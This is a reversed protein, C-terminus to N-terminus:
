SCLKDAVEEILKRVEAKQVGSEGCGGKALKSKLTERAQLVELLPALQGEYSPSLRLLFALAAVLRHVVEESQTENTLAELVASVMEVEWEEDEAVEIHGMGTSAARGTVREVRSRQLTAAVDFAVSAAATRVAADGFLLCAVVVCTVLARKGAPAHALLSQALAAHAFGNALLRLLTLLYNRGATKQAPDATDLVQAGKNLLLSLASPTPATALWTAVSEELLALRWMDVLPFLQAPSLVNVLSTTATTWQALMQPTCQVAPKKSASGSDAFRTKLFPLFSTSITAKATTLQESPTAADIFTGFKTAVTDLAPVQTFLIPDTSLAEVARLSLKTHPHPPFAQFLLMDVQSRLEAANAGKVENIKKGDLFFLFTPTARIGYEAGVQNGMGAMDVKVFATKGGGNGHTKNHSLEEFVPEIMRCPGCTASTFFVVAARHSQLIGHLASSNTCMHIPAAVTASGATPTRPLSTPVSLSGTSMAQSAVAQLLASALAPNPSAAAAQQMAGPSPAAPPSAAGPTPRRFMSDITPRLAAGFPTSLFDSPLDKIWAPISGGTLFGVCDNTFSNCNFDLLHYKDATYVDRMEELYENFTEEDLATEGVDVVHLPNGHHSQGPATISIGQGYFVEKGFIVVSTHWVGDIQKGTLQRSLQKALGNSLDYVYLQVTPM